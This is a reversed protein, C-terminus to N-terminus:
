PMCNGYRRNETDHSSRDGAFDIYDAKVALGHEMARVLRQGDLDAVARKKRLRGANRDDVVHAGVVHNMAPLARRQNRDIVGCEGALEAPRVHRRHKTLIPPM